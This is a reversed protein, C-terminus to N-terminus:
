ALSSGPPSAESLHYPFHFTTVRCQSISRLPHCSLFSTGRLNLKGRLLPLSAGRMAPVSSSHRPRHHHNVAITIAIAIAITITITIPLTSTYEATM